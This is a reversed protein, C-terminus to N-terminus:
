AAMKMNKGPADGVISFREIEREGDKALVAMKLSGRERRKKSVNRSKEQLNSRLAVAAVVDAREKENKWSRAKEVELGTRSVRSYIRAKMSKPDEVVDKLM